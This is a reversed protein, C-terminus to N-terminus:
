KDVIPVVAIAVPGPAGTTKIPAATPKPIPAKNPKNEYCLSKQIM